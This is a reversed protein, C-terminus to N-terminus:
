SQDEVVICERQKSILREIRWKDRETLKLMAEIWRDVEEYMVKRLKQMNNGTIWNENDLVITWRKLEDALWRWDIDKSNEWYQVWSLLQALEEWDVWRELKKFTTEWHSLVDERKTESDITIPNNRQRIWPIITWWMWPFSKFLREPFSLTIWETTIIHKAWLATELGWWRADWNLFAITEFWYEESWMEIFQLVAELCKYAYERMQQKKQDEDKLKLIRLFETLDWWLNFIKKTTWEAKIESSSEAIFYNINIGLRKLIILILNNELLSDLLQNSFCPIEPPHFTVVASNNEKYYKYTSFIDDERSIKIEESWGSTDLIQSVISKVRSTIEDTNLKKVWEKGNHKDLEEWVISEIDTDSICLGAKDFPM